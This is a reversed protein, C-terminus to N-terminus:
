PKGENDNAVEHRTNCWAQLEEAEKRLAESKAIVKAMHEAMENETM